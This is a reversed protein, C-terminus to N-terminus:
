RLKMLQLTLIVMQGIPTRHLLIFGAQMIWGYKYGQSALESVRNKAWNYAPPAFFHALLIVAVFYVVSFIVLKVNSLM